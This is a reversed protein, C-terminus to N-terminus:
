YTYGSIDVKFFQQLWAEFEAQNNPDIQEIQNLTEMNVNSWDIMMIFTLIMYANMLLGIGNLIIGIIGLTKGVGSGKVICVISFIAGIISFLIGMGLCSCCLISIGGLIVAAIGLGKKRNEEIM